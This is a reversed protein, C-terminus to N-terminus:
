QTDANIRDQIDRARKHMMADAYSHALRATWAMDGVDKAILATLAHAAFLDRTEQQTM